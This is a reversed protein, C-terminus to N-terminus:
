QPQENTPYNPNPEGLQPGYSGGPGVPPPPALFLGKIDANKYAGSAFWLFILIGMFALVTWLLQFPSGAEKEDAM